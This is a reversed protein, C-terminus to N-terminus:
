KCEGQEIVQLAFDLDKEFSSHCHDKQWFFIRNIVRYAFRWGPKCRNVYCRASVTQDHHGFLFWLNISQSMWAFVRMLWAKM